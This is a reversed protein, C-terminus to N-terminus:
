QKKQMLALRARPELERARKSHKIRLPVFPYKHHSLPLQAVQATVDCSVSTMGLGAKDALSWAAYAGNTM